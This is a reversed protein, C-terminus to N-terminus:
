GGVEVLGRVWGRPGAALRQRADRLFTPDQERAGGRQGHRVNWRPLLREDSGSFLLSPLGLGGALLAIHHTGWDM